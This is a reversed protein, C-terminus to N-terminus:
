KVEPSMLNWKITAHTGDDFTVFADGDHLFEDAWGHRGDIDYVFRDGSSLSFAGSRNPVIAYPHPRPNSTDDTRNTM